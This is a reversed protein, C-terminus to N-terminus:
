LIGNCNGCREETEIQDNFIIKPFDMSDYSYPDEVDIKWGNKHNLLDAVFSLLSESRQAKWGIDSHALNSEAMSEVDSNTYGNQYLCESAWGAM